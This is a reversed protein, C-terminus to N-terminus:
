LEEKVVEILVDAFLESAYLCQKLNNYDTGFELLLSNKYFEQNYTGAKTRVEKILGPYMRAGKQYLRRAFDLNQRWNPNPKREDTGVIILIPAADRGKVSVTDGKERGPISDRHVDFLALLKSRDADLVRAVTKRSNTYSKNFDPYDHVTNVFDSPLGKSKLTQSLHNAVQTILGPGGQARAEGSDPIYSEGTHTCYLVVLRGQFLKYNADGTNLEQQELTRVPEVTEGSQAEERDAPASDMETTALAQMNYVLLDRALRHNLYDKVVTQQDPMGAMMVNTERVLAAAVDPSIRLGALPLIVPKFNLDTLRETLGRSFDLSVGAIIIIILIQIFLIGKFFIWLNRRRM